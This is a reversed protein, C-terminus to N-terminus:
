TNEKYHHKPLLQLELDITLINFMFGNWTSFDEDMMLYDLRYITRAPLVFRFFSLSLSFFIIIVASEIPNVPFQGRYM